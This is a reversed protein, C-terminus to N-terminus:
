GRGRSGGDNISLSSARMRRLSFTAIHFISQFSDSVGGFFRLVLLSGLVDHLVRVLISFRLDPSHHM